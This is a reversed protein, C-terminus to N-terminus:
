PAHVGLKVATKSTSNPLFTVPIPKIRVIREEAFVEPSPGHSERSKQQYMTWKPTEPFVLLVQKATDLAEADASMHLKTLSREVRKM